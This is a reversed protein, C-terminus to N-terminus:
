FYLTPISDLCCVFLRLIIQGLLKRGTSGKTFIKLAIFIPPQTHLLTGCFIREWTWHEPQCPCDHKERDMFNGPRLMNTVQNVYGINGKMTHTEDRELDFSKSPFEVVV